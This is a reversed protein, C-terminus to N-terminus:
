NVSDYLQKLQFPGKLGDPGVGRCYAPVGVAGDPARLGTWGSRSHRWPHPM